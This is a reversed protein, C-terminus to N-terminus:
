QQWPNSPWGGHLFPSWKKSIEDNDNLTPQKMNAMKGMAWLYGTIDGNMAANMGSMGLGIPTLMQAGPIVTGGLTALAGLTGLMGNNGQIYHVAM